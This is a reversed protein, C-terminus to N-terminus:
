KCNMTKADWICSFAARTDILYNTLTGWSETYPDKAAIFSKADELYPNSKEYIIFLTLGSPPIKKFTFEFSSTVIQTAESRVVDYIIPYLNAERSFESLKLNHNAPLSVAMMMYPVEPIYVKESVSQLHASFSNANTNPVVQFSKKMDPYVITSPIVLQPHSIWMSTTLVLILLSTLFNSTILSKSRHPHKFRYGAVPILICFWIIPFSALVVSIGCLADILKRSYLNSKTFQIYPGFSAAVVILCLSVIIEIIVFFETYIELIPPVSTWAVKKM